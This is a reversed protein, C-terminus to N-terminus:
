VWQLPQMLVDAYHPFWTRRPGRIGDQKANPMQVHSAKRLQVALSATSMQSPAEASFDGPVLVCFSFTILARGTDFTVMWCALNRGSRNLVNVMFTGSTCTSECLSLPMFNYLPLAQKISLIITPRSLNPFLYVQSCNQRGWFRLHPDRGCLIAKLTLHWEPAYHIAAQPLEWRENCLALRTMWLTQRHM